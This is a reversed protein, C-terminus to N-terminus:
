YVASDDGSTDWFVAPVECGVPELSGLHVYPKLYPMDDEEWGYLSAVYTPTSCREKKCPDCANPYHCCGYVMSLMFYIRMLRPIHGDACPVEQPGFSGRHAHPNRTPCCTPEYIFMRHYGMVARREYVADRFPRWLNRDKLRGYREEERIWPIIQRQVDAGCAEHFEDFYPVLDLNAYYIKFHGMHDAQLMDHGLMYEFCEEAESAIEKWPPPWM